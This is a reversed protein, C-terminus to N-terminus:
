GKLITLALRIKFYEMEEKFYEFYPKLAEPSELKEKAIKDKEVDEKSLFQYIDVDKGEAYLKALHFFITALKLDRKESIEEVSFGQKYLEYTVKYTDDKRRKQIKEDMFSIIESIFEDGYAELKRQGVGSIEMFELASMPRAREM